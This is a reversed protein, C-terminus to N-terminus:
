MPGSKKPRERPNSGTYSTKGRTRATFPLTAHVITGKDATSLVEFVGNLQQVRERMGAIGVGLEPATRPGRRLPALGCGQDGIETVIRGDSCAIRVLATQSHVNTLAEEVIRYITTEVGQSQRPLDEPIQVRVQIGSRGAFGSVLWEPCPVPPAEDLMPPHMLYSVTRVERVATDALEAASCLLTMKLAALTQGASEAVGACHPTPRRGEGEHTRSLERLDEETRVQETIHQVVGIRKVM